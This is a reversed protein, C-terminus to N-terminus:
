EVAVAVIEFHKELEVLFRKDSDDDIGVKVDAVFPESRVAGHAPGMGRPECLHFVGALRVLMLQRYIVRM